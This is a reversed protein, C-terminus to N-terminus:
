RGTRASPVDDGDLDDASDDDSEEDFDGLDADLADDARSHAADGPRPQAVEDEAATPNIARDRARAERILQDIHQANELTEDYVWRLHPMRRVQLVRSVQRQIFGAASKLMHEARSKDGDDGLVSYYIKGSTVDPSLKVKTITIFSARPDNLEFQLCHAAREHIRAQLRAITRPNAM